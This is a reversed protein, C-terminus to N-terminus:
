RRWRLKELKCRNKIKKALLKICNEKTAKVKDVDIWNSKNRIRIKECFPLDWGEPYCYSPSLISYDERELIYKNIHSEDHWIAIVNNQIDLDINKMLSKMLQLFADSKGGNVGGCIYYDGKGYPIYATSKPNRDYTYEDSDKDYFGPHKVVLLEKDVPLFEEETIQDVCQCNANMFFIYDFERLEDFIRSFIHFRKLTNNPWGLSKQYIIHVNNKEKFVIDTDDTFVYYEKLSNKLFNNEYSEYFDKWFVSYVGTCIYLIAIRNM